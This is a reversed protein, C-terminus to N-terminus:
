EGFNEGEGVAAVVARVIADEDIGAISCLHEYTGYGRVFDFVALQKASRLELAAAAELCRAFVGDRSGLEEVTVLRQTKALSERVIDFDFPKLANVYILDVSIGLKRLSKTARRADGLRPGLCVLTVDNGSQMRLASGPAMVKADIEVAHPNETLRFYKIGPQRYSAGFLYIFEPVSGPIFVSATPLQGVLSADSYSHHSCGLQSYDFTSGVSVLCVQKNQYEFGLKLQEFTREVLFPAITHVVPSLGVHNLGAALGIIGQECIGINYYRDPYQEAFQRFIGHSIDSVLVVLDKDHEALEMMLEPFSPRLSM